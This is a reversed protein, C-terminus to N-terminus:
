FAWGVRDDCTSPAPLDPVKTQLLEAIERLQEPEHQLLWETIEVSHRTKVYEVRAESIEGFLDVLINAGHADSLWAAEEWESDDPPAAQDKTNRKGTAKPGYNDKNRGQNRFWKQVEDATVPSARDPDTHNLVAAVAPAHLLYNEYLRRSTFSVEGRSERKMDDREKEPRMERDFIFGLTPPLLAAGQSLKRHVEYIREAFKSEFDGTSKVGLIATGLLPKQILKKWILPFCKEETPGEVWLVADAGFVDALRAGVEDLYERMERTNEVDLREVDSEGGTQKVLLVTSPNSATIITPSHTVVIYQHQSYSDGLVEILRRVAGPHLFSQPEDILITRPFHSTFVVYLIALVQGVGTGSESLPIALDDRESEFPVPWLLVERAGEGLDAVSIHLIQPLVERVLENFRNLKAPNRQLNDLVQALNSANPQLVNGQAAVSRGVIREARFGYIRERIIPILDFGFDGRKDPADNENIVSYSTESAGDPKITHSGYRRVGRQAAEAKYLGFTVLNSSSWHSQRVHFQFTLPDHEIIWEYLKQHYTQDNLADFSGFPLAEEAAPIPLNFTKIRTHHLEELEARSFEISVEAWSNPNLPADPQPLTELSRHPKSGHPFSLSLAELLATKGANNRGTIINFGPTLEFQSSGRYSKYNHLRFRSLHM